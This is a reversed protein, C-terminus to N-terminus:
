PALAIIKQLIARAVESPPSAADVELVRGAGLHLQEQATNQRLLAGRSQGANRARLEVASTKFVVLLDPQPYLSLSRALSRPRAPSEVSASDEFYSFHIREFFTNLNRPPQASSVYLVSIGPPLRLREWLRRVDELFYGFLARRSSGDRWANRVISRRAAAWVRRDPAEDPLVAQCAALKSGIRGFSARFTRQLEEPNAL